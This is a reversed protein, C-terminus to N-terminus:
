LSEKRGDRERKDNNRKATAASNKAVVNPERSAEGGVRM